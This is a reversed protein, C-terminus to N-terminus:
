RDDIQYRAIVRSLAQDSLGSYKTRIFMEMRNWVEFQKDHQKYFYSYLDDYLIELVILSNKKLNETMTSDELMKWGKRGHIDPALMDEIFDSIESWDIVGDPLNNMTPEQKKEEM